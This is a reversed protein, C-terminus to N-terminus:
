QSDEFSDLDGLVSSNSHWNLNLSLSLRRQHKPGLSFQLVKFPSHPPNIYTLTQPNWKSLNQHPVFSTSFWFHSASVQAFPSGPRQVSLPTAGPQLPFPPRPAPPRHGPPRSTLKESLLRKGTLTKQSIKPDKQALEPNSKWDLLHSFELVIYRSAFSLFKLYFPSVTQGSHTKLNQGNFITLFRSFRGFFPIFTRNKM